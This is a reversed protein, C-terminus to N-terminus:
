PLDKLGHTAPELGAAGVVRRIEHGARSGAPARSRRAGPRFGRWEKTASPIGGPPHKRPVTTGWPDPESREGSGGGVRQRRCRVYAFDSREEGRPRFPCPLSPARKARVEGIRPDPRVNTQIRVNKQGASGPGFPRSDAFEVNLPRQRLTEGGPLPVDVSGDDEGFIVAFLRKELEVYERWTMPFAMRAHSVYDIHAHVLQDDTKM